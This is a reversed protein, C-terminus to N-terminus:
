SAKIPAGTVLPNENVPIQLTRRHRRSPKGKRRWTCPNLLRGGRVDRRVKPWRAQQHIPRWRRGHQVAQRATEGSPPYGPNKPGQPPQVAQASHRDVLAQPLATKGLTHTAPTQRQRETESSKKSDGGQTWGQHSQCQKALRAVKRWSISNARRTVM